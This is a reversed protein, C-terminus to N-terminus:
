IIILELFMSSCTDAAISLNYMLNPTSIRFNTGPLTDVSTSALYTGVIHIM